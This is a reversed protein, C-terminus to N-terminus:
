SAACTRSMLGHLSRGGEGGRLESGAGGSTEMRSEEDLMERLAAVLREVQRPSNFVHLSIRLANLGHEGVPRTRIGYRKRLEGAWRWPDMQAGGIRVTLISASAGPEEPTLIEVGSMARLRDRLQRALSRTYRGIAEMGIMKLFDVAAGLGVMLPVNRTGYEAARAAGLAEFVGGDLDYRQDSYAGVFPAQWRDLMARRVFFMGTGKPGLMWKHGSAAYFDCGLRHVDVPIMGVAQAGDIVCVLGRERCLSAIRKVPLIAGTTCTVHSVAIVRTRDNIGGIMQQLTEDSCGGIEFTRVTVGRDRALAFWPMAGGPHEHTSLLVEEGAELPLGRAITNMGETTSRTFALEDAECNIFRCIKERVHGIRERGSESCAELVSMERIVADVVTRPSPGLGGTNFYCYGPDLLLEERVAAWARSEPDRNYRRFAMAPNVTAQRACGGVAASAGGGMAAGMVGFACNALFRRRNVSDNDCKM